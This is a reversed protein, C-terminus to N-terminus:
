ALLGHLREQVAPVTPDIRDALQYAEIAEATRGLAEHAFGAYYAAQGVPHGGGTHVREYTAIADDLRGLRLLVQGRAFWTRYDCPSLRVLEDTAALAENLLGYIGFTRALTEYMPFLHDALSLQELDTRPRASLVADKAYGLLRLTDDRAGRLFPIYAAARYFTHRTMWYEFSDQRMTNMAETGAAFAKDLLPSDKGSKGHRVMALNAFAIRQRPTYRLDEAANTALAVLEVSQPMLRSMTALEARATSPSFRLGKLNTEGSVGLLEAALRVFGLRILLDVTVTMQTNSSPRDAALMEVLACWTDSALDDPMAEPRVVMADARQWSAATLIRLVPPPSTNFWPLCDTDGAVLHRAISHTVMAHNASQPGPEALGVYVGCRAPVQAALLAHLRKALAARGPDPRYRAPM